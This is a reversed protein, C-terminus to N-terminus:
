AVNMTESIRDRAMNAVDQYGAIRISRSGTYSAEGGFGLRSEMEAIEEMEDLTAPRMELLPPIEISTLYGGEETERVRNKAFENVADQYDGTRALFKKLKEQEVPETQYQMLLDYAESSSSQARKIRSASSAKTQPCPYTEDRVDPHPYRSPQLTDTSAFADKAIIEQRKRKFQVNLRRGSALQGHLEQVVQRTEESSNFTAFAMCRFKLFKDYLYNLAYPLPLKMQSLLHFVDGQTYDFPINKIIIATPIIEGGLGSFFPRPHVYSM